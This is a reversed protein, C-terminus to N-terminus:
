ETEFFTKAERLKKMAKTLEAESLTALDGKVQLMLSGPVGFDKAVVTVGDLWESLMFISMMEDASQVPLNLVVSLAYRNNGQSIDPNNILELVGFHCADWEYAWAMYDPADAISEFRRACKLWPEAALRAQQLAVQGSM